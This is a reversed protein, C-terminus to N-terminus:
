KRQSAENRRAQTLWTYVTGAPEGIAEALFRVSVGSSHVELLLRAHEGSLRRRENAVEVISDILQLQESTSVVGPRTM